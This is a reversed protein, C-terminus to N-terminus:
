LHVFNGMFLYLDKGDTFFYVFLRYSYFESFNSNKDYVLFFFRVNRELLNLLEYSEGNVLVINWYCKYFFFFFPNAYSSDMM